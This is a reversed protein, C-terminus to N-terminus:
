LGAWQVKLCSNLISVYLLILQEQWTYVDSNFISM